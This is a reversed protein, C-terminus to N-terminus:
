VVGSVLSLCFPQRFGFLHHQNKGSPLHAQWIPNFNGFSWQTPPPLGQHDRYVYIYITYMYRYLPQSDPLCLQKIIAASWPKPKGTTEPKLKQSQRQRQSRRDGSAM